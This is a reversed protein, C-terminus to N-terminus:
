GICSATLVLVFIWESSISSFAGTIETCFIYCMQVAFEPRRSWRKNNAFFFVVRNQVAGMTDLGAGCQMLPPSSNLLHMEIDHSTFLFFLKLLGTFRKIRRRWREGRCLHVKSIRMSSNVMVVFLMNQM